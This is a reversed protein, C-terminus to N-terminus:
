RSGDLYLYDEEKEDSDDSDNDKEMDDSEDDDDDQVSCSGYTLEGKTVERSPPSVVREVDEIAKVRAWPQVEARAILVFIFGGIFYIAGSILFFQQWSARTEQLLLSNIYLIKEM